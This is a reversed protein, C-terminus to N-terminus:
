AALRQFQKRIRDIYHQGPSKAECMAVVESEPVGTFNRIEGNKFWIRLQGDEQGFFVGKIIRSQVPFQQM